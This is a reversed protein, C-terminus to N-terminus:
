GYGFTEVVKWGDNPAMRARTHPHLASASEINYLGTALTRVDDDHSVAPADSEVPSFTELEALCHACEVQIGGGSEPRATERIANVLANLAAPGTEDDTEWGIDQTWESTAKDLVERIQVAAGLRQCERALVAGDKVEVFCLADGYWEAGIAVLEALPTPDLLLPPALRAALRTPVWKGSQEDLYGRRLVLLVSREADRKGGVLKMAGGGRVSLLYRCGVRPREWVHWLGYGSPVVVLGGRVQRSLQITEM